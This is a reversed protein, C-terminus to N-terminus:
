LRPVLSYDHRSEGTAEAKREQGMRRLDGLGLGRKAIIRDVRQLAAIREDLQQRQQARRQARDERFRTCAAEFNAAQREDIRAVNTKAGEQQDATVEGCPNGDLGYRAGGAALAVQYQRRRTYLSFIASAEEQSLVGAAILDKDIGVKLPRHPQWRERTFTEPFLDALAAITAEAAKHDTTEFRCRTM